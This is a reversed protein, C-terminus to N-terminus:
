EIDRVIYRLMAEIVRKGSGPYKDPCETAVVFKSEYFPTTVISDIM